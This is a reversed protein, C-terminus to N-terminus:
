LNLRRERKSRRALNTTEIDSLPLGSWLQAKLENIALAAEKPTFAKYVKFQILSSAQDNPLDM